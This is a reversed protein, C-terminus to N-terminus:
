PTFTKLSDPTFVNVTRNELWTWDDTGYGPYEETTIAYGNGGLERYGMRYYEENKLCYRVAILRKGDSFFSNMSTIDRCNDRITRITELVSTVIDGTMEFKKLFIEFFVKSDTIDESPIDGNVEEIDKITGNHCFVLNEDDLKSSFPHVNDLTIGGRSAKRAHLIVLKSRDNDFDTKREWVPSIERRMHLTGDKYFAIGYGDGHPNKKGNRAQDELGPLWDKIEVETKSIVGVMRCM